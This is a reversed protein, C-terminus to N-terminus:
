VVYQWKYGGAYYGQRMSKRINSECINTQREAEKVGYFTNLLQGKKSFQMIPKSNLISIKKYDHHETSRQCGTGYRRNYINTCWELNEVSNNNKDEDKHNIQPLNDPNDIFAKGVVRHILQMYDKKNIFMHVQIYGRNNKKTKLLKGTRVSMVNGIDSVKYLGEYGVADKWNEM